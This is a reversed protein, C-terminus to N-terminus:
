RSSSSLFDMQLGLWTKLLMICGFLTLGMGLYFIPYIVIYAWLPTPPEEEANKSAAVDQSSAEESFYDSASATQSYILIGATMTFMAACVFVLKRM